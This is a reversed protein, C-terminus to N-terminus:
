VYAFADRRLLVKEVDDDTVNDITVVVYDGPKLAFM